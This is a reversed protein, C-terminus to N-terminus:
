REYVERMRRRALALDKASTKQTKKIFGHLLVMYGEAVCFIIRANRGDSINSRIEWLGDGLGRCLPIGIPWGYEATQVDEGITKRDEPSLERLWERVPVRGTPETQYFRVPLRKQEDTM